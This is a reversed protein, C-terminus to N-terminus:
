SGVVGFAEHLTIDGVRWLTPLFRINAFWYKLSELSEPPKAMSRRCSIGSVGGNRQGTPTYYPALHPKIETRPQFGVGGFLDKTGMCKSTLWKRDQSFIGHRGCQLFAHTREGFILKAPVMESIEPEVQLDAKWIGFSVKLNKVRVRFTTVQPNKFCSGVTVVLLKCHSQPTSAFGHQCCLVKESFFCSM